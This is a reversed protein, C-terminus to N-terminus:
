CSCCHQGHSRAINANANPPEDALPGLEGEIQVLRRQFGILAGWTRKKVISFAKQTKEDTKLKECEAMYLWYSADKYLTSLMEQLAIVEAHVEM